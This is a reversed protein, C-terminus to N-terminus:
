RGELTRGGARFGELVVTLTYVEVALAEYPGSIPLLLSLVEVVESATAMEEVIMGEATMEVGGCVLTMVLTFSSVVLRRELSTSINVEELKFECDKEALEANSESGVELEVEVM